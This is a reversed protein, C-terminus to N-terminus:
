LFCFFVDRGGPAEPEAKGEGLCFFHVIDSVDVLPM